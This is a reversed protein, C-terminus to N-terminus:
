RNRIFASIRVAALSEPGASTVRAASAPNPQSSGPVATAAASATTAATAGNARVAVRLSSALSSRVSRAPAEGVVSPESFRSVRSSIRSASGSGRRTSSRLRRTPAISRRRARGAPRPRARAAIEGHRQTLRRDEFGGLRHERATARPIHSEGQRARDLAGEGSPDNGQRASRGVLRGREGGEVVQRRDALGSRMRASKTALALWSSFVGSDVSNPEISVNRPGPASSRAACSFNRGRMCASAARM